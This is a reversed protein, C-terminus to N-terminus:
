LPRRRGSGGSGRDDRRLGPDLPPVYPPLQREPGPDGGARPHCKSFAPEEIISYLGDDGYGVVGETMGAYAPIWHHFTPRLSGIRGQTGAQAPIAHFPFRLRRSKSRYTTACNHRSATWPTSGRPAVKGNSQGTSPARNFVRTPMPIGSQRPGMEIGAADSGHSYM